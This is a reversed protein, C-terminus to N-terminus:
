SGTPHFRGTDSLRYTSRYQSVVDDLVAECFHSCSGSPIVSWNGPDRDSGFLRYPLSFHCKKCSKSRRRFDRDLLAHLDTATLTTATASM